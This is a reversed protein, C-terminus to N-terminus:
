MRERVAEAGEAELPEMAPGNLVTGDARLATAPIARHGELAIATM